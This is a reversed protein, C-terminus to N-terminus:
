VWYILCSRIVHSELVDRIYNHANMAEEEVVVLATCAGMCTGEWVMVSGGLNQLLTIRTYCEGSKRWMRQHGDSSRFCFRSRLERVEKPHNKTELATTDRRKNQLLAIARVADTPSLSM